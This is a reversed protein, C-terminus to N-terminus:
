SLLVELIKETMRVNETSRMARASKGMMHVGGIMYEFDVARYKFHLIINNENEKAKTRQGLPCFLAITNTTTGQFNTTFIWKRTTRM